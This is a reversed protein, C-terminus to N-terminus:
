LSHQSVLGGGGVRGPQGSVPFCSEEPEYEGRHQVAQGVPEFPHLWVV